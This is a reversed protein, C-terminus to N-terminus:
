TKEERDKGGQRKGKSERGGGLDEGKGGRQRKGRPRKGM